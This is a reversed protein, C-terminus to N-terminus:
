ELSFKSLMLLYISGAKFNNRFYLMEYLKLHFLIHKALCFVSVFPFFIKLM